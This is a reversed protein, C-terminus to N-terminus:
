DIFKDLCQFMAEDCFLLQKTDKFHFEIHQKLRFLNDIYEDMYIYINKQILGKKLFKNTIRTITTLENYVDFVTYYVKGHDSFRNVLKKIILHAYSDLENYIKKTKELKVFNFIINSIDPPLIRSFLSFPM